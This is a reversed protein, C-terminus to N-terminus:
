DDLTTRILNCSMAVISDDHTHQIYNTQVAVSKVDQKVVGPAVSDLPSTDAAAQHLHAEVEVGARVVEEATAERTAAVLGVQRNHNLEGIQRADAEALGTQHALSRTKTAHETTATLLRTQQTVQRQAPQQAQGSDQLLVPILM